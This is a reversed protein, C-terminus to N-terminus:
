LRNNRAWSLPAEYDLAKPICCFFIFLFANEPLRDSAAINKNKEQINKNQRPICQELHRGQQQKQQQQQHLSKKLGMM